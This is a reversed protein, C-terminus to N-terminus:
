QRDEPFNLTAFEGFHLKALEDYKRAADEKNYFTGGRFTRGYADIKVQYSKGNTQIYVGRYGSKPTYSTRNANNRNRDSLRLNERRNDSPDRNIHDVEMGNPANLIMRHMYVTKGEIQTLFYNRHTSWKYRIVAEYDEESVLAVTGSRSLVQKM